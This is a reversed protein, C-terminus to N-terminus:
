QKTNRWCEVDSQFANLNNEATSCAIAMWHENKQKGNKSGLSWICDTPNKGKCICFMAIMMFMGCNHSDEQQPFLTGTRELHWSNKDNTRCHKFATKAEELRQQELQKCWEEDKTAHWARCCGDLACGWERLEDDSPVNQKAISDCLTISHKNMNVVLM